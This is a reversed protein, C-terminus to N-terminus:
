DDGVVDDLENESESDEDDEDSFVDGEFDDEFDDEDEDDNNTIVYDNITEPFMEDTWFIDGEETWGHQAPSPLDVMASGSLKWIKAVYNARELHLLFTRLCPPLLSLDTIQKSKLHKKEFIKFRAMNLNSKNTSYLRCVFKEFASKQSSSLQWIEGLTTFVSTWDESEEIMKNWCIQKSKKFFASVYDNGTFAHFGIVAQHQENSLKISDLWIKRRNDGNGTDVLVRANGSLLGIAIVLIDTDRSPSRICVNGESKLADMAHLIVKTDAEEQNSVLSEVNIVNELTVKECYEDGSMFITSCKLIDLCKKPHTKIYDFTLKILQTKNDANSYFSNLDCPIMTNFLKIM